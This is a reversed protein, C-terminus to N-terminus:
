NGSAPNSNSSNRSFKDRFEAEKEVLQHGSIVGLDILLARLVHDPSSVVIKTPEPPPKTILQGTVSFEHNLSSHERRYKGCLGCREGDNTTM